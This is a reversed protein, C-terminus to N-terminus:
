VWLLIKTVWCSTFLLLKILTGEPTTLYVVESPVGEGTRNFARVRARYTSHFQLGGLSCFSKDTEYVVEFAGGMGDDIEILYGDPISKDTMRWSLVINNNTVSCEDPVIEPVGPGKVFNKSSTSVFYYYCHPTYHTEFILECLFKNSQHSM